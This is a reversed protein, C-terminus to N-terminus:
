EPTVANDPLKLLYSGSYEGNNNIDKIMVLGTTISRVDISEMSKEM